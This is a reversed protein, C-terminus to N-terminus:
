VVLLEKPASTLVDCGNHTIVVDDEIRLGFEGPLYVGPEITIVSGLVLRDRSLSSVRPREHVHLGLGHGLSHTFFKGYGAKRIRERAIRDLERAWMGPRAAQIADAQAALVLEYAERRRKSVSGVAVTRTLDSSYGGVTCGFDLTVFDGKKIRRGSARAHPQAGREGSAVIPEFADREAGKTRHLYSIEAAIELERVGPRITGLIEQFVIDTLRVAQKILALERVDKALAIQEVFDSTPRFRVGPFRRRLERYVAYTVHQSEFGVHRCGALLGQEGVGELLSYPVILRRCGRVEARSQVAYRGDTLFVASRPRVVLLANSGTFGTLYRINPLSSVLIADLKTRRIRERLQALRSLAM